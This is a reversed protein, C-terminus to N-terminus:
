IGRFLRIAWRVVYFVVGTLIAIAVIPFVTEIIDIVSQATVTDTIGHVDLTPATSTGFVLLPNM